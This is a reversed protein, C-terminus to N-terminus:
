EQRERDQRYSLDIGTRGRDRRCSMSLAQEGETEDVLCLYHRDRETKDILCLDIGTRGRDQRFSM